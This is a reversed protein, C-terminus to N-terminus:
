SAAIWELTAVNGALGVSLGPVLSVLPVRERSAWLGNTSGADVAYLTGAIEIVLAHVRSIAPDNLVGLRSGDCRQYRGLLVGRAAAARGLVLTMEGEASRVVLQGRADEDDDLLREYDFVPGPLSVTRQLDVRARRSFQRVVRDGLIEEELYIREPLDEWVMEPCFPSGSEKPFVFLTYAGARLFVPGEAELAEFRRGLEDEFPHIARLDMIRFRVGEGAAHPYVIVTGQRLSMTPDQSLFLDAQSHRGITIVDIRDSRAPIVASGEFGSPGIATVVLGAGVLPEYCSHIADHHRDFIERFDPRAERFDPRAMYPGGVLSPLNRAGDRSLDPKLRVFASRNM